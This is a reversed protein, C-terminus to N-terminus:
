RPNESSFILFINAALTMALTMASPFSAFVRSGIFAVSLIRLRNITPMAHTGAFSGTDMPAEHRQSPSDRGGLWKCRGEM